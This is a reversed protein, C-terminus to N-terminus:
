TENSGEETIEGKGIALGFVPGLSGRSKLRVSRANTRNLASNCDM